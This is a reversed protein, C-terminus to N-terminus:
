VPEKFYDDITKQAYGAACLCPEIAKQMLDDLTMDTHNVTVTYEGYENKISIVTKAPNDM